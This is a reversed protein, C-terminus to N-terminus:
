LATAGGDAVLTAATVFSSEDSLPFCAAAAIEEPEGFRAQISHPVAGEDYIGDVMPTRVSGAAIVNVRVNADAVDMALQRSFSIIGGKAAAYAALRPRALLAAVSAINVISGGGGARLVPLTAKCVLITGTLHVALHRNWEDLTLEEIPTFKVIGASNM